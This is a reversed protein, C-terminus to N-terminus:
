IKISVDGSSLNVTEGDEKRVVLSYDDAIALATAKENKNNQLIIIEKGIIM